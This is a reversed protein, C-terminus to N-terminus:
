FLPLSDNANLTIAVGEIEVLWNPRCVPGTVVLFPKDGVYEQVTDRVVSADGSNRVYVIFHQMDRMTADEQTLLASINELTRDLQRMVDGEHVVDGHSDISATGSVFIHKRDRYAVSTAREFAVGYVHTHSLHDLAHLHRIQEPQVGKIAYADMMVLTNRDTFSAQIGTSAIFHTEPSLKCDAFVENRGKVFGNYNEDVDKVYFWTRLCNDLLTMGRDELLANYADFIAHTQAYSGSAEPFALGTSWVHELDGRQLSFSAGDTIGKSQPNQDKICYVWLIVRAPTVPPQIVLSVAGHVLEGPNSVPHHRLADIQKPTDSCFFHRLVIHERDVGNSALVDQLAKDLWDLQNEFSGQRIPKLIFNYEGTGSAGAFCSSLVEVFDHDMKTVNAAQIGMM